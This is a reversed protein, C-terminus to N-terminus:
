RLERRIAKAYRHWEDRETTSLVQIEGPAIAVGTTKQLWGSFAVPFRGTLPSTRKRLRMCQNLTSPKIGMRREISSISTHYIYCMWRVLKGIGSDPLEGYGSITSLPEKLRVHDVRM